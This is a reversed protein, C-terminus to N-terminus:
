IREEARQAENISGTGLVQMVVEESLVMTVKEIFFRVIEIERYQASDTALCFCKCFIGEIFVQLALLVQITQPVLLLLAFAFAARFSCM